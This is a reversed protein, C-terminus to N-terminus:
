GAPPRGQQSQQEAALADLLKNWTSRKRGRREPKVLRFGRGANALLTKLKYFVTDTGTTVALVPINGLRMLKVTRGHAKTKKPTRM